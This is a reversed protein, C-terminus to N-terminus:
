RVRLTSSMAILIHREKAFAEVQTAASCMHPNMYPADLQQGIILTKLSLSETTPQVINPSTM